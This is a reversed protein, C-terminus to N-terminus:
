KSPQSVKEGKTALLLKKRKKKPFRELAYRVTTRPIRPGYALLFNELRQVDKKGAERLLWGMAKHILDESDSLLRLVMHYAERLQNGQRVLPILAVLAARRLWLNPSKTWTYLEEVIEPSKKVLPSIIAPALLVVLAWNDVYNALLWSKILPLHHKTLSPTYYSLVLIALSRIEVPPEPLLRQCFELAEASTWYPKVKNYISRAERRLKPAPIGLLVLQEKFFRQSQRAFQPDSLSQLRKIIEEATRHPSLFLGNQDGM